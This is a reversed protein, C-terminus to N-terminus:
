VGGGRGGAAHDARECPRDALASAACSDWPPWRGLLRRLACCERAYHPGAARATLRLAAPWDPLLTRNARSAYVPDGLAAHRYHHLALVEREHTAATAHAPTTVCAEGECRLRLVDRLVTRMMQAAHSRWDEVYVVALSRNLVYGGDLFASILSAGPRPVPAEDSAGAGPASSSSSPSSTPARSPPRRRGCSVDAEYRLRGHSAFAAELLTQNTLARPDTCRFSRSLVWRTLARGILPPPPEWQSPAADDGAATAAGPSACRTRVLAQRWEDLERYADLLSRQFHRSLDAQLAAATLVTIRAAARACFFGATVLHRFWSYHYRAPECLTLGIAARPYSARLRRVFLALASANMYVNLNHKVVLALNDAPTLGM